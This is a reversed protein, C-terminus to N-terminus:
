DEDLDSRGYYVKNLDVETYAIGLISNSPLASNICEIKVTNWNDIDALRWYDSRGNDDKDIITEITIAWYNDKQLDDFQCTINEQKNTLFCISDSLAGNQSYLLTTILIQKDASDNLYTTISDNLNKFGKYTSTVNVSLTLNFSQSLTEENVPSCSYLLLSFLLIIYHNIEKM